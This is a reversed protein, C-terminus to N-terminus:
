LFSQYKRYKVVSHHSQQLTLDRGGTPPLVWRHYVLARFSKTFQSFQLNIVIDPNQDETVPRWESGPIGWKYMHLIAEM